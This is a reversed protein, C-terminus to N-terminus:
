EPRSEARIRADMLLWVGNQRTWMQSIWSALPRVRGSADSEILKGSLVAQDGVLQVHLGEFSRREGGAGREDAHRNDSITAEHTSLSGVAASDHRAYADLWQDVRAALDPPEGSVAAQAPQSGGTAVGRSEPRSAVPAPSAPPAPEAARTAAAPEPRAAATFRRTVAEGDRGLPEVAGGNMAVKVAGADGARVLVEHSAGISKTSGAEMFRGDDAKGDVTTRVWVRRQASITLSVPLAVEQDKRPATKQDPQVGGSVTERPQERVDGANAKLEPQLRVRASAGSSGSGWLWWMTAAIVAVGVGGFAAVAKPAIKPARPELEADLPEAPPAFFLPSPM